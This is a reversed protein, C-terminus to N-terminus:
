DQQKRGEQQLYLKAKPTGLLRLRSLVHQRTQPDRERRAIGILEDEARANFLGSIIARKADAGAKPYLRALEDRGGAEGLTVIAMDRLRTDQESQIIRMLASEAGRHRLSTVVQHKVRATGTSYVQLLDSWVASDGLRGLERVAVVRIAEPGTKAVEVVTSRAEPRRSQALVFLARRAEGRNEGRLAIEKLIPVVKSTDTHILSGLAQIRLDTDPLYGEPVWLPPPPPPAVPRTSPAAPATAAPPTAPPKAVHPPPTRGPRRMPAPLPAPAPLVPPVPTPMVGPPAPPAPPAATYWLVDNRHLRQAIEIRLSRAPRVWASKPHQRELRRITEVAAATDHAQYHSHALWFLAEDKSEEKPDEAAGKLEEIARVWEEDAILDKARELRQSEPLAARIEHPWLSAVALLAAGLRLGVRYDVM